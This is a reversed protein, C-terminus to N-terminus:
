DAPSPEPIRLWVARMAVAAGVFLAIANVPHFAAVLSGALNATAYQVVVLVYLGLPALKLTTSLRTLAGVILWLLSLPEFVYVFTTHRAWYGGDVFIALGALFMQVLVAFAFLGALLVYGYRAWAVRRPLGTETGTGAAADTETM